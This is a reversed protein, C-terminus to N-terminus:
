AGIVLSERDFRKKEPDVVAAADLFLNPVTAFHDQPDALVEDYNWVVVSTDNRAKLLQVGSDFM